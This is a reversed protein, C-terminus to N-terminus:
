VVVIDLADAGARLAAEVAAPTDARAFLFGLYRDGEPLPVVHRGVPVTIELGIVGDVALAADRGGVAELVGTGPIPLMM